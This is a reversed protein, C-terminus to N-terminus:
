QLVSLQVWQPNDESDVDGHGSAWGIHGLTCSGGVPLGELRVKMEKM